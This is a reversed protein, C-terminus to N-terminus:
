PQKAKEVTEVAQYITDMAKDNVFKKLRNHAQEDTEEAGIETSGEYKIWANESDIEVQYTVGITLRDGERLGHAESGTLKM